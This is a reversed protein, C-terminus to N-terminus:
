AVLTECATTGTHRYKAPHQDMQSGARGSKVSTEGFGGGVVLTTWRGMGLSSWGTVEGGGVKAEILKNLPLRGTAMWLQPLGQDSGGEYSFGAHSLASAAGSASAAQQTLLMGKTPDWDGLEPISGTLVVRANPGLTAHGAIAPMPVLVTVNAGADAGSSRPTTYARPQVM